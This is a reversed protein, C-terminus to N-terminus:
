RNNNPFACSNTSSAYKISICNWRPQGERYHRCWCKFCRGVGVRQCGLLFMNLYWIDSILPVSEHLLKPTLIKYIGCIKNGWNIWHVIMNIYSVRLSFEPILNCSYVTRFEDWAWLLYFFAWLFFILNTNHVFVHLIFCGGTNSTWLYSSLLLDLCSFLILYNHFMIMIKM